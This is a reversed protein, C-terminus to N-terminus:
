FPWIAIENEENPGPRDLLVGDDLVAGALDDDAIADLLDCILRKIPRDHARAAPPLRTVLSMPLEISLYDDAKPM